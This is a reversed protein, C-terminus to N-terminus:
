VRGYQGGKVKERASYRYASTQGQKTTLPKSFVPM